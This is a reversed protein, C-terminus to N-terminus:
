YGYEKLVKKLAAESVIRNGSKKERPMCQMVATVLATKTTTSDIAGNKRATLIAESLAMRRKEYTEFSKFNKKEAHRLLRDYQPAARDSRPSRTGNRRQKEPPRVPREGPFSTRRAGDVESICNGRVSQPHLNKVTNLGGNIWDVFHGMHWGFLFYQYPSTGKKVDFVIRFGDMDLGVNGSEGFSYNRREFVTARSIAKMEWSRQEQLEDESVGDAVLDKITKGRQSKTLSEYTFAPATSQPADNADWVFTVASNDELGADHICDMDDLESENHYLSFASRDGKAFLRLKDAIRKRLDKVTDTKQMWIRLLTLVRKKLSTKKNDKACSVYIMVGDPGGPMYAVLHDGDEPVDKDTVLEGDHVFVADGPINCAYVALIRCERVTWSRPVKVSLCKRPDMYSYCNYLTITKMKSSKEFSDASIAKRFASLKAKRCDDGYAACIAEAYSSFSLKCEDAKKQQKEGNEQSM